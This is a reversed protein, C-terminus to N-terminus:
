DLAHGEFVAVLSTADLAATFWTALEAQSASAILRQVAEPLQGFRHELLQTLSDARGTTLGETLGATKGEDLLEQVVHGVMAEGRGPKAAEAAASLTLRRVNRVSMLYVVVQREFDSEDPLAALIEPLAALKEDGAEEGRHSYRLVLLGARAAPDAALREVPIHGLDRLFYGFTPELAQLREDQGSVMAAISRPATWPQRGHYFVLPVIAPLARLRDAEGRAYAEWIRAKYKWLQLATGPDSYSKHELLAYVFAPQGSRLTVQLLKDSQSARLEEDVFTGDLPVPLEDALLAGLWPELHARLIADARHQDSLTARFILDHPQNLNFEM